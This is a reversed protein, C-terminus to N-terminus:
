AKRKYTMQRDLQRASVEHLDGTRMDQLLCFLFVQNVPGSREYEDVVLYHDLRWALTIYTEKEYIRGVYKM